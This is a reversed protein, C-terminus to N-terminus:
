KVVVVHDKEHQESGTEAPMKTKSLLAIVLGTIGFAVHPLYVHEAFGFLWPSAALLASLLIDMWLHTRMSLSKFFSLEYRTFSSYTLLIAAATDVTYTQMGIHNFHFLWPSAILLASFLYDIIGHIFTPIIKM